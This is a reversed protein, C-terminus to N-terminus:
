IRQQIVSAKKGHTYLEGLMKNPTYDAMWQHCHKCAVVKRRAGMSHYHRVIRYSSGNWVEDVTYVNLDGLAGNANWDHCCLAVKGDWYVVMENFPKSCPQGEDKIKLRTDGYGKLSHEVYIRVRDAHQLWEEVFNEKRLPPILTDLISVQTEVNNGSANYLFTLINNKTEDPYVFDHLSISASSCFKLIANRNKRTLKDGNTAIQVQKFRKMLALADVFRPYLLPEGRFFPIITTTDPLQGLITTLLDWKMDGLPYNTKLRPCGRCARNCRNTLEVAVRKPLM